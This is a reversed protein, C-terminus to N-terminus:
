NKEFPNENAANRVANHTLLKLAEREAQYERIVTQAETLAARAIQDENGKLDDENEEPPSEPTVFDVSGGQEGFTLLKRVSAEVATKQSGDINPLRTEILEIIDSFATAKRTEIEKQFATEISRNLWKKHRLDEVENQIGIVDTAISTVRKSILALITAVTLSVALVLIISGTSAGIVKTDEPAEGSALAVGRIITHWDDASSKWDVIDKIAAENQFGLRVVVSGDAEFTESQALGLQSLAGLFQTFGTHASGLTGIIDNLMAAATTADFDSTRVIQAVNLAGEHGIFRYIGMDTLVNIQQMSLSEFTISELLAELERLQVDVPQKSPQQSNHQIPALVASYANHLRQYHDVFWSALKQVETTNM